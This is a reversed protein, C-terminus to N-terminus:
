SAVAQLRRWYEATWADAQDVPVLVKHGIKVVPFGETRWEDLTSRSVGYVLCAVDVDIARPEIRVQVQLPRRGPRSM